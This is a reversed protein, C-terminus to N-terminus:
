FPDHGKHSFDTVESEHGPVIPYRVLPSDGVVIHLDTGCIGCAGVRIILEDPHPTPDPLSEVRVGKPKDILVARMMRGGKIFEVQTRCDVELSPLGPGKRFGNIPSHLGKVLLKM